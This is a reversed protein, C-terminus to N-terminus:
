IQWVKDSGILVEVDQNRGSVSEKGSNQGSGSNGGMLCQQQYQRRTCREKSLLSHYLRFFYFAFSSIQWKTKM